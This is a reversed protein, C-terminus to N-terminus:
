LFCAVKKELFKGFFMKPRFVLLFEGWFFNLSGLTLKM